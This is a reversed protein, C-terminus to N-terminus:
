PQLPRTQQAGRWRWSVIGAALAASIPLDLQLRTLWVIDPLNTHAPLWRCALWAVLGAVAGAGLTLVAVLVARPMAITWPRPGNRPQLWAGILLTVAASTGAISTCAAVILDVRGAAAGMAGATLAPAMYAILVERWLTFARPSATTDTGRSM